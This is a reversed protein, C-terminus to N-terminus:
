HCVEYEMIHLNQYYCNITLSVLHKKSILSHLSRKKSNCKSILSSLVNAVATSTSKKLLDLNIIM